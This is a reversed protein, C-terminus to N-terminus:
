AARRRRRLGAFSSALFALVLWPAGTGSARGPTRCNCSTSTETADDSGGHSDPTCAKLSSCHYGDPCDSTTDCPPVCIGPPENDDAYCLFGDRCANTCAEGLPSGGDMPSADPTSADMGSTGSTGATGADPRPNGADPGADAGADTGADTGDDMGADM